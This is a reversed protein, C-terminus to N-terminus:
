ARRAEPHVVRKADLYAQQAAEKTGFHGILICTGEVTIRARWRNAAKHFDVGLRGNRLARNQQNKSKTVERLNVMRNDTRVGNIHDIEKAPFVGYVYLWALRHALYKKAGIQIALYGDKHPGGIRGSLDSRYGRGKRPLRSFLGTVPDYSFRARLIGATLEDDVM